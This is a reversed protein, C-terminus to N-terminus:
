DVEVLVGDIVISGEIDLPVAWLAQKNAPVTFEEGAPIFYPVFGGSEGSAAVTVRGYSDVTVNANTYSGAVGTIPALGVQIQGASTIPSGNTIIQDAVGQVDVSTVTGGTTSSASLTNTTRNLTLGSGVTLGGISDGDVFLIKGDGIGLLTQVSRWLHYLFSYWGPTVVGGRDAVPTSSNPIPYPM